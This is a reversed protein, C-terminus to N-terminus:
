RRRKRLEKEADLVDKNKYSIQSLMKDGNKLCNRITDNITKVDDKIYQKLAEEIIDSATKEKTKRVNLYEYMWNKMVVTKRITGNLIVDEVKQIDDLIDFDFEEANDDLKVKKKPKEPKFANCLICIDGINMNGCVPCKWANPNITPRDVSTLITEMKKIQKDVDDSEIIPQEVTEQKVEITETVKEEKREEKNLESTYKEILDKPKDLLGEPFKYNKSLNNYEEFETVIAELKNIKAKVLKEDDFTEIVQENVLKSFNEDLQKKMEALANQYDDKVDGHANEQIYQQTDKFFQEYIKLKTDNTAEAFEEKARTIKNLHGQKIDEKEKLEQQHKEELEKAVKEHEIQAQTKAEEKIEVEKKTKESKVNKSAMLEQISVGANPKKIKDAMSTKRKAM